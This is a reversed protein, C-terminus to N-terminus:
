FQHVHHRIMKHCRYELIVVYVINKKSRFIESVDDTREEATVYTQRLCNRLQVTNKNVLM